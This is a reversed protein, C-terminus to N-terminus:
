LIAGTRSFSSIASPHLPHLMWLASLVRAHLIRATYREYNFSCIVYGARGESVHATPPSRPAPVSLCVDRRLLSYAHVHVSRPAARRLRDALPTSTTSASRSLLGAHTLTVCRRARDILPWRLAVSCRLNRIRWVLLSLVCTSDGAMSGERWTFDFIPSTQLRCTSSLSSM